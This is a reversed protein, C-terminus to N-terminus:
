SEEREVFSSYFRISAYRAGDHFKRSIVIAYAHPDLPGSGPKYSSGVASSRAGNNLANPQKVSRRMPRWHPWPMSPHAIERM